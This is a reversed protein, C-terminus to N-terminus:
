RILELVKERLGKCSGECEIVYIEKVEKPKFVMFANLFDELDLSGLLSARAMEHDVREPPEVKRVYAGDGRGRDKAGIVIVREFGEVDFSVSMADRTADIVKVGMKELEERLGSEMIEMINWSNPIFPTAIFAVAVKM